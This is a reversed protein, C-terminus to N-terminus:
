SWHSVCKVRIELIAPMAHVTALSTTAAMEERAVHATKQVIPDM